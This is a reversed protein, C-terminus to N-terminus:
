YLGRGSIMNGIEDRGTPAYAAVPAAAPPLESSQVQYSVQHRNDVTRGSRLSRSASMESTASISAMDVSTNGLTYPRGEPLPVDGRLARNPAAMEPVFGRASAVRVTAPSPAPEGTRLTAMLQRDDSGELPARAVYEVRVRATGHNKFELLEAARNSVDMLRNSHYPGRDNVRVILSKGNKLNTVRAYCPMPLTPHAASLSAMDFVEGNATLRGHFDDGYWSALGEERYALNEEPVYMKGGVVYPKGVRYTGGGKPVPEGPEVVRPSASVGYKPDVKSAFKGSSACNALILCAGVTAVARAARGISDSERNGM